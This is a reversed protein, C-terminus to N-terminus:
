MHLTSMCTQTKLYPYPNSKIGDMIVYSGMNHLKVLSQIKEFDWDGGIVHWEFDQIGIRLLYEAAYVVNEFHKEPAIRGLSLLYIKSTPMMINEMKSLRSIENTDIMNSVVVLKEKLVPAKNELAQKCGESVVALKDFRLALEIFASDIEVNGHHWWTIRKDASVAYAAVQMCIGSRFGIVCDYHVNQTLLRKSLKIQKQGFFKMALFILRMKLCFWDRKFVCRVLSLLVSGYTNALPHFHINVEHPLQDAYEGVNELLLLDVNYKGYDLNKLIDILSKEIGGTKLHGNIFLIRRKDGEQM